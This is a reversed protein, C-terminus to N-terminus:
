KKKKNKKNIKKVNEELPIEGLVPIPLVKELQDRRTITDDLYDLLLVIAIGIILGIVAGMFVVREKAPLKEIVKVDEIVKTYTNLIIEKVGVEFESSLTSVVNQAILANDSSYSITLIPANQAITFGLGSMLQGSTMGLNGKSIVKEMFDDTKIIEIYSNILTTYSNLESSSYDGQINEDKGAFIKVTATYIPKMKFSAIGMAILTSIFVCLIIIGLGKKLILLGETINLSKENM